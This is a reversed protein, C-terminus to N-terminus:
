QQFRVTAKSSSSGSSWNIYYSQEDGDSNYEQAQFSRGQSYQGGVVKTTSMTTDPFNKVVKKAEATGTGKIGTATLYTTGADLTVQDTDADQGGITDSFVVTSAFSAVSSMLCASLVGALILSKSKKM